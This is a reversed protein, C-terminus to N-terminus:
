QGTAGDVAGSRLVRRSRTAAEVEEAHFAVPRWRKDAYRLTQDAFHVSGPNGSQAYSLLADAVPGDGDFSLTLIFISGHVVPYGADTLFRSDGIKKPAIGAIPSASPDGAVQLNAVGEHSNGGHVPIAVGSRWAFQAERLTASPSLGAADLVALAKRLAARAREPDALDRPTSEPAAADFSQAFLEGARQTQAYDFRTIWERFLVAGPSDLDLRGDYAALADCAQALGDDARCAAVLDDRLLEAALGRNSFLAEQMERRDFRGDAGADGYANELLRVNMRTRLSRATETAGYLISYGTLPARPNSLWYSDNANFVYDRRELRPREEFAPTGPRFENGDNLWDNDPDAGDLLIMGRTEFLGAALPDTDLSARWRRQADASLKGVNTSDLYLARGDASAAITNVWPMASHRRHAEIFADLDAAEGMAQWQALMAYNGANADRVAYAVDRDWPMNEMVLLPGHHSFYFRHERQAVAGDDGRVAVSVDRVTITRWADGHRYRLPDDPDLTLRYFTLRQSASVTHSWGLVANFGIAVGPAGLLGAGYVNLRGPITLHKEWFRNGGYWPYHPNALLMGRGNETHESGLAWANSGFGALAARDLLAIDPVAPDDHQPGPPLSQPAAVAVAQSRGSRTAEEAATRAEPLPPQAAALAADIRPLTLALAVMRRMFDLPVAAELWSAGSCWLREGSARHEALFRNFGASYGSLLDRVREPQRALADRAQADIGLAALVADSAFHRDGEGAGLHRAMEGRARMLEYAINCLHDEAAAYGEGYGLSGYDAAEIHAVGVGDRRLLVEYNVSSPAPSEALVTAPTGLLILVLAAGLRGCRASERKM